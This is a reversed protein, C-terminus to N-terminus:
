DPLTSSKQQEADDPAIQDKSSKQASTNRMRQMDEITNWLLLNQESEKDIDKLLKAAKQLSYFLEPYIELTQKLLAQPIQSIAHLIVPSVFKGFENTLFAILKGSQFLSSAVPTWYNNSNNTSDEINHSILIEKVSYEKAFQEIFLRVYAVGQKTYSKYLLQFLKHKDELQQEEDSINKSAPLLEDNWDYLQEVFCHHVLLSDANPQILEKPSILCLESIDHLLQNILQHATTWSCKDLLLMNYFKYLVQEAIHEALITKANEFIDIDALWIGPSNPPTVSLYQSYYHYDLMERLRQIFLPKYEDGLLHLIERWQNINPKLRSMLQDVSLFQYRYTQQWIGEEHIINEITTLQDRQQAHFKSLDIEKDL